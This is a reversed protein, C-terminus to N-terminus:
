CVAQDNSAADAFVSLVICYKLIDLTFDQRKGPRHTAQLVARRSHGSQWLVKRKQFNGYSRSIAPGLSM